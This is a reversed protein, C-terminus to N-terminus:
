TGPVVPILGLAKRIDAQAHRAGIHYAVNALKAISNADCIHLCKILEGFEEIGPGSISSGEGVLLLAKYPNNIM